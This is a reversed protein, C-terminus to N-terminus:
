LKLQLQRRAYTLRCRPKVGIPYCCAVKGLSCLRGRLRATTNNNRFTRVGWGGRRFALPAASRLLAMAPVCPLLRSLNFNPITSTRCGGGRRRSLPRPTLVSAVLGCRKVARLANIVRLTNIARLTEKDRTASACRCSEVKWAGNEM